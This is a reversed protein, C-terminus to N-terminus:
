MQNATVQIWPQSPYRRRHCTRCEIKRRAAATLSTTAPALLMSQTSAQHDNAHWGTCRTMIDHLDSKRAGLFNSVQQLKACFNFQQQCAAPPPLQPTAPCPPAQRHEPNTRPHTLRLAAPAAIATATANAAVAAAIRRPQRLPLSLPLPLRRRSPPCTPPYPTPAASPPASKIRAAEREAGRSDSVFPWPGRGSSRVKPRAHLM